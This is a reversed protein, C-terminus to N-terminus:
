HDRLNFIEAEIKEAIIDAERKDINEHELSDLAEQYCRLAVEIDGEGAAHEAQEIRHSVRMTSIFEDLADKSDLLRKERPYHELATSLCDLASEAKEM